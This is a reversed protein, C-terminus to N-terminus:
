LSWNTNGIDPKNFRLWQQKTREFESSFRCLEKGSLKRNQAQITKVIHKYFLFFMEGGFKHQHYCFQWNPNELARLAVM